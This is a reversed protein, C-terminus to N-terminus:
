NLRRWGQRIINVSIQPEDQPSPQRKIIGNFVFADLCPLSEVLGGVAEFELQNENEQLLTTPNFPELLQLDSEYDEYLSWIVKELEPSPMTVSLGIDELAERRPIMYNHAYLKETLYNIIEELRGEDLAQRHLKLLRRALSRILAYNRYVNGLALPHVEEALRIFVENFSNESKLEAIERSLTIYSTVDEVSVPIRAVPNNPDQPNFANAVSPDIPGLEGLKGMVIEEAGLCILTGASYARFPVLVALHGTYERLLHVLRWPTLVDGGRTYLFLDLRPQYGLAELHRYFVRIVDPAIRTGLNERDGTIYCLLASQRLEQIQRILERRRERGM